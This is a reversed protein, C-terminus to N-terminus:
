GKKTSIRVNCVYKKINQLKNQPLLPFSLPFACFNNIQIGIRAM